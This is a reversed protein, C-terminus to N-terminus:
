GESEAGTGAMELLTCITTLSEGRLGSKPQLVSRKPKTTSSAASHKKEGRRVLVM